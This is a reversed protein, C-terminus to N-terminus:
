LKLSSRKTLIGINIRDFVAFAVIQDRLSEAFFDRFNQRAALIHVYNVLSPFRMHYIPSRRSLLSEGDTARSRRRVMFRVSYWMEKTLGIDFCEDQLSAVFTLEFLTMGLTTAIM